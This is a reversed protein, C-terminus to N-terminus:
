LLVFSLIIHLYYNRITSYDRVQQLQEVITNSTKYTTQNLTKESERITADNLQSVIGEEIDELKKSFEEIESLMTNGVNFGVQGNIDEIFQKLKDLDKRKGAVLDQYSTLQQLNDVNKLANFDSFENSVCDRVSESIGNYLEWLKVAKEYRQCLDQLSERTSQWVVSIKQVTEEIELSVSAESTEILPQAIDQLDDITHKRNEIEILM